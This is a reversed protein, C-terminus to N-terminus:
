AQYKGHSVPLLMIKILDELFLACNYSRENKKVKISPINAKRGRLDKKETVKEEKQLISHCLNTGCVIAAQQLM